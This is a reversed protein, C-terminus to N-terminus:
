GRRRLLMLGGMGLLALSAPEPILVTQMDALSDAVIIEDVHRQVGAATGGSGKWNIGVDLTGWDTAGFSLLDAVTDIRADSTADLQVESSLDGPNLWATVTSEDGDGPLGVQVRAVMLATTGAQYDTGSSIGTGQVTFKNEDLGIDLSNPGASGITFQVFTEDGSTLDAGHQILAAFWREGAAAKNDTFTTARSNTINNRFTSLGNVSGGSGIEVSGKSYTLGTSVTNPDSHGDWSGTFNTVAPGQGSLSAGDTYAGSGIQFSEHVLIAADSAPTTLGIAVAAASTCALM